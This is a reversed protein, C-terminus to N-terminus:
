FPEAADNFPQHQQRPAGPTAQQQQQQGGGLLQVRYAKIETTWRKSGSKDEWERTQISGEVFVQKGKVLYQNIAESTPGWLVVRHFEAREQKNGAKDTWTDNTAVTFNSVATGDATHRQEADATLNGLILAKNVSGM